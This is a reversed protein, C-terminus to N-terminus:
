VELSALSASNQEEKVQHWCYNSLVALRGVVTVNNDKTYSFLYKFKIM